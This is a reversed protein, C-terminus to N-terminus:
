KARWATGGMEDSYAWLVWRYWRVFVEAKTGLKFAHAIRIPPLTFRRCPLEGALSNADIGNRYRDRLAQISGDGRRIEM